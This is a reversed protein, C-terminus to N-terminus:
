TPADAHPPRNGAKSKRAPTSLTLGGVVAVLVATGLHFFTLTMNLALGPTLFAFNKLGALLGSFLVLAVSIRLWKQLASLDSWKGQRRIFGILSYVAGTALLAGTVLHVKLNAIFNGSWQFGPIDAIYYRGYLPMNGFGTFLAVLLAAAFLWNLERSNRSPKM